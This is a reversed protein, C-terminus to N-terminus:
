ASHAPLSGQAKSDTAEGAEAPRPSKAKMCSLSKFPNGLARRRSLLGGNQKQRQLDPLIPKCHSCDPVLHVTNQAFGAPGPRTSPAPVHM